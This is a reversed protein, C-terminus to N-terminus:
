AEDAADCCSPQSCERDSTVADPRGPSSGSEPSVRAGEADDMREPLEALMGPSTVFDLLCLSHGACKRCAKYYGWWWDSKPCPILLEDAVVKGAFACRLHDLPYPCGVPLEAADAPTHAGAGSWRRPRRAERPEPAHERGEGARAARAGEEGGAGKEEPLDLASQGARVAFRLGEPLGALLWLRLDEGKEHAEGPDKGAPVPWRKARPFTERWRPWGEAGARSGQKDPEDFDLAVLICDAKELDAFLAPPLAKVTSTMAAAVGMLDGALHHLLLADLESEVVAIVRIGEGRPQRHPLYLADMESGPVVFFKQQPNFRAREEEPRRIRLRRAFSKGDADTGLQPIVLGVPLWLHRPKGDPKTQEPLGWSSRARIIGGQGREGPNWGLGYRQVAEAPLGRGALWALAAQNEWIRTHAWSAFATAKQRWLARDPQGSGKNETGGQEPAAKSKPELRDRRNPGPAFRPPALNPQVAVGVARCAESYKMGRYDRLYQIGDGQAGCRRCWYYGRGEHDDPWISCRDRGGCAPCPSAWETATKKKAELGDARFLDLICVPM